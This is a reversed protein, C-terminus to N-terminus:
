TPGVAGFADLLFVARRENESRLVDVRGEIAYESVEDDIVIAQTVRLYDGQPEIRVHEPSRARADTQIGEGARFLPLFGHELELASPNV